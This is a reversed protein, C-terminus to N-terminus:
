PLFDRLDAGFQVNVGIEGRAQVLHLSEKLLFSTSLFELPALLRELLLQRLQALSARRDVCGSVNQTGRFLTAQAQSALEILQTRLLLRRARLPHTIQLFCHRPPLIEEGLMGLDLLLAFTQRVEPRITRTGDTRPRERIM